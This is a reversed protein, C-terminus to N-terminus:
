ERKRVREDERELSERQERAAEVAITRNCHTGTTKAMATPRLRRRTDQHTKQDMKIKEKHGRVSEGVRARILTELHQHGRPKTKRPIILTNDTSTRAM